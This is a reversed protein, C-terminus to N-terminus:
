GSCLLGLVIGHERNIAPVNSLLHIINECSMGLCQTYYHLKELSELTRAFGSV